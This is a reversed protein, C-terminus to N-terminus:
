MGENLSSNVQEIVTEDLAREILSRHSLGIGRHEENQIEQYVEGLMSKFKESFDQSKPGIFRLRIRNKEKEFKLKGKKKPLRVYKVEKFKGNQVLHAIRLFVKPYRSMLEKKMPESGDFIFLNEYTKLLSATQGVM